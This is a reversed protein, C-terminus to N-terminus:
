SEDSPGSLREASLVRCAGGQANRTKLSFELGSFRTRGPSVPRVLAIAKSGISAGWEDFFDCSIIVHTVAFANSNRITVEGYMLGSGRHWTPRSVRLKDVPRDEAGPAPQPKEEAAAAPTVFGPHVPGPLPVNRAALVGLVATALVIGSRSM